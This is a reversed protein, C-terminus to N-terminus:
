LVLNPGYKSRVLVILNEKVKTMRPVLLDLLALVEESPLNSIMHSLIKIAGSLQYSKSNEDDVISLLLQLCNNTPLISILTNGCEEAIRGISADDNEQANLIKLLVLESKGM